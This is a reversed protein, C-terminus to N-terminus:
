KMEVGVTLRHVNDLVGFETFAYDVRITTDDMPVRLGGGVTVGEETSNLGSTDIDRGLSQNSFVFRGSYNLKYGMRLSLVDGARYEAGTYLLQENDQPKTADFAVFLSNEESQILSLSTGVSFVLPLPAGINYYKLDPGINSIRAGITMDRFGVQYAAGFDFAYTSAKETDISQSIAKISGGLALKDTFKRGYTLYAALDSYNYTKSTETDLPTFTKADLLFQPVIDRDAEIDSLTMSIVGVGITGLDGFAHSVGVINQTLEAIWQNRTYSVQTGTGPLAIGAPNLFIQNVDGTITTAASGLAVSRADAGVKLFSAGTLGSKRVQASVPLTLMGIGLLTLLIRKYM